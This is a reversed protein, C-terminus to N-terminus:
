TKGFTKAFSYCNGGFLVFGAMLMVLIGGVPVGRFRVAVNLAAPSREGASATLTAIGASPPRWAVTGAEDTQGLPETHAVASNPRYTVALAIGAAPVGADTVVVRCVEGEVPAAPEVCVRLQGSSACREDAQVTVAASALLAALVVSIATRARRLFDMVREGRPM